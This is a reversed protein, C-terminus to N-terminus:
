SWGSQQVMNVCFMSYMCDWPMGDEPRCYAYTRTKNARGKKKEAGWGGIGSHQSSDNEVQQSDAWLSISDAYVCLCSNIMFFVGFSEMIKPINYNFIDTGGPNSVLSENLCRKQSTSNFYKGGM